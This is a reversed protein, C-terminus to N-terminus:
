AGRGVKAETLFPKQSRKEGKRKIEKKALCEKRETERELEERFGAILDGKGLNQSIV